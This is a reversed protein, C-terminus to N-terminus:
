KPPSTIAGKLAAQYNKCQEEKNDKKCVLAKASNIAPKIKENIKICSSKQEKIKEEILRGLSSVSIMDELEKLIGTGTDVVLESRLLMLQAALATKKFTSGDHYFQYFNEKIKKNLKKAYDVKMKALNVEEKVITKINSIYSKHAKTLKDIHKKQDQHFNDANKFV